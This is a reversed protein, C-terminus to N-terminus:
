SFQWDQDVHYGGQSNSCFKTNKYAAYLARANSSGDGNIVRFDSKGCSKLYYQFGNRLKFGGGNYKCPNEPPHGQYTYNCASEGDIWLATDVNGSDYYAKGKNITALTPAALFASLLGFTLTSTKM